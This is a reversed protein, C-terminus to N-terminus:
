IKNVTCGQMIKYIFGVKNVVELLIWMYMFRLDFNM